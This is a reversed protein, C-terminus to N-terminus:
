FRGHPLKRTNLFRCNWIETDSMWIGFIAGGTLGGKLGPQGKEYRMGPNIFECDHIKAGKMTFTRVGCYMFGDIRLESLQLGENAMGFIAGHMKPGTLTLASISIGAADNACRILYGSRDFKEHNTEPDPLTAPNAIFSDANTVRTKGAGAGRISVGAKLLLQKPLKFEGAALEIVKGPEAQEAAALLDDVTSVPAAFAASSCASLLAFCPFHRM